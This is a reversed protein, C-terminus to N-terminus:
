VLDDKCALQSSLGAPSGLPDAPGHPYILDCRVHPLTSLLPSKRIFRKGRDNGLNHSSAPCCTQLIRTESVLSSLDWM